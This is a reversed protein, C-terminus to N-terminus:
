ALSSAPPLLGVPLAGATIDKEHVTHTPSHAASAYRSPHARVVPAHGFDAGVASFVCCLLMTPADRFVALFNGAASFGM